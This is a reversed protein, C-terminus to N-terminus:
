DDFLIEGSPTATLDTEGAGDSAIMDRLEARARRMEQRAEEILVRVHPSIESDDQPLSPIEVTPM